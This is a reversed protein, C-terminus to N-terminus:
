GVVVRWSSKQIFPVKCQFQSAVHKLSENAYDVISECHSLFAAEDKELLLRRLEDGLTHVVMQLVLGVERKKESSKERRQLRVKFDEKSISGLSYLIRLDRNADVPTEVPYRELEYYSVHNVFRLVRHPTSSSISRTLEYVTPIGGCPTDGPERGLIRGQRMAEYYHPNGANGNIIQGTRWSFSTSCQTCYMHDCGDLKTIGWGCSPCCKTDRRMMQVNLKANEDCVHRKSRQDKSPRTSSSGGEEGERGKEGEGVEEEEEEMPSNCEKCTRRGCVSCTSSTSSLFGRCGLYSCPQTFHSSPTHSIRFDAERAMQRRNDTLAQMLRVREEKLLTMRRVHERRKLEAEVHPQTSPMLSMEKDLLCDERHKKYPGNLFTRSLIKILVERGLRKRCDPNMCSADDPSSLLYRSLCPKCCAHDCYPCAAM